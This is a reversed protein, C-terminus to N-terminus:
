FQQFGGKEDIHRYREREKRVKVLAAISLIFVADVGPYTLPRKRKKKRKKSSRMTFRGVM